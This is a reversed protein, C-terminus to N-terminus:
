KEVFPKCINQLWDLLEPTTRNGLRKILCKMNDFMFPSLKPLDVYMLLSEFHVIVDDTVCEHISCPLKNLMVEKKADNTTKDYLKYLRDYHDIADQVHQNLKEQKGYCFLNLKTINDEVAHLREELMLAFKQEPTMTSEDLLDM